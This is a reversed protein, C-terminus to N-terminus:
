HPRRRWLTSSKQARRGHGPEETRGAASRRRLRGRSRKEARRGQGRERTSEARTRLIGLRRPGYAKAARDSAALAKDWEHM